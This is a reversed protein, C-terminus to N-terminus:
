LQRRCSPPRQGDFRADWYTGAAVARSIVNKLVIAEVFDEKVFREISGLVQIVVIGFVVLRNPWKMAEGDAEFVLEV